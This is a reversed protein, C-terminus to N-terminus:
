QAPADFNLSSKKSQYLGDKIIRGKKDTKYQTDFNDAVVSEEDCQATLVKTNGNYITLWPPQMCMGNCRTLAYTKGDEEFYTTDYSVPKDFVSQIKIPSQKGADSASAVIEKGDIKAALVVETTDSVDLQCYTLPQKKVTCGFIMPAGSPCEPKSEAVAPQTVQAPQQVEPPKPAEAVKQTEKSECGLIVLAAMGIAITKYM